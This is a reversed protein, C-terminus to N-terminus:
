SGKTRLAIYVRLYDAAEAGLFTDYDHYKGKTIESPVHIHILGAGKELDEKVYGYTLMSITGERFGGLAGLTILVKDRPSALELVHTLEDPSPSRDKYTVQGRKPPEDLELKIGNVRYFTRLHKVCCHVRGKTLGDDELQARYDEVFGVHQKLRVDDVINGGAKADNIIMDPSHGNLFLSYRSITDSYTYLTMPSGSFGRLFHRAMKVITKNQFAWPILGPRESGFTQIIYPILGKERVALVNELSVKLPEKFKWGRLSEELVLFGDEVRVPTPLDKAAELVEDITLTKPRVLITTGTHAPITTQM